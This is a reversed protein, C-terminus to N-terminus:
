SSSPQIVAVEPMKKHDEVIERIVKHFANLMMMTWSDPEGEPLYLRAYDVVEIIINSYSEKWSGEGVLQKMRVTLKQGDLTSEKIENNKVAIELALNVLELGRAIRDYDDEDMFESAILVAGKLGVSIALEIERKRKQIATKLRGVIRDVYKRTEEPGQQEILTRLEPDINFSNKQKFAYSVAKVMIERYVGLDAAVQMLDKVEVNPEVFIKDIRTEKLKLYGKSTDYVPADGNEMRHADINAITNKTVERVHIWDDKDEQTIL